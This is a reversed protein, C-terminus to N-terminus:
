SSASTEGVIGRSGRHAEEVITLAHFEVGGVLTLGLHEVLLRAVESEGVEDSPLDLRFGTAELSGGNVFFITADLHARYDTM